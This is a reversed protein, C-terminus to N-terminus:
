PINERTQREVPVPEFTRTTNETVSLPPERVAELRSAERGFVENAGPQVTKQSQGETKHYLSLLRSLQRVLLGAIVLVVFLFFSLLLFLPGNMTVGRGVLVLAFAFVLGLGTLTILTVAISVAWVPGVLNPTAKSEAPPNLNAGCRPCYRLEQTQQLGCSPCYM